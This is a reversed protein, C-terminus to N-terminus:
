KKGKRGGGHVLSWNGTGNLTIFLAMALLAINYEYGWAIEGTKEAALPIYFGNEWHVKFIAVLMIAAIALASLRSLFGVGLIVVAGGGIEALIVLWKSLEPMPVGLDALYPVFPESGIKPIGHMIMIVGLALRLLLTGFDFAAGKPNAM